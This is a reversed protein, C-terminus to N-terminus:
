RVGHHEGSMWITDSWRRVDFVNTDRWRKRWHSTLRALSWEPFELPDCLRLFRKQREGWSRAHRHTTTWFFTLRGGNPDPGSCLFMSVLGDYRVLRFGLVPEGADTMRVYFAGGIRPVVKDRARAHLTREAEGKRVPESAHLQFDALSADVVDAYRGALASMGERELCRVVRLDDCRDRCENDLSRRRQLDYESWSRDDLALRCGTPASTAIARYEAETVVPRARPERTVAPWDEKDKWGACGAEFATQGLVHRVCHHQVTRPLVEKSRVRIGIHLDVSVPPIPVIM